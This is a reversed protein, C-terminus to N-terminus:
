SKLSGVRFRVIRTILEYPIKENLQFQVSGKGQKYKKLEKEFEKHGSPTAYLGIHKEYAAFYILPKNDLKYAPIGYSLSEEAQIANKLILKRIKNLVKQTSLPFQAIYENVSNAKGVNKISKMFSLKENALCSKLIKIAVPGM